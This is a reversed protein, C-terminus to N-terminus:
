LDSRVEYSNSGKLVRKKKLEYGVAGLSLFVVCVFYKGVVNYVTNIGKTPVEGRLIWSSTKFHDLKASSVGRYDSIMSLGNVSQTVINAGNEIGRFHGVVTHYTAIETWDASPIFLIDIDKEGVQNLVVPFDKDWCIIGSIRGYPTDVYQIEMSGLKTGEFLNGGYKYHEIVENGAPDIVYLVNEDAVEDSTIIYPVTVIYIEYLKAIEKIQNLYEEKQTYYLSLTGEAHHIIKAGNKAEIKTLEVIEDIQSENYKLYAEFDTEYLDNARVLDEDDRDITHIGAVSVTPSDEKSLMRLSGYGILLTFILVPILIQKNASESKFNIMYWYILSAFWMIVFTIGVVGILSAIQAIPLLNHQSYGLLSFTGNPNFYYNMYELLAYVSPLILTMKISKSKNFGKHQLYFAFAVLSGAIAPVFKFGPIPIAPILGDFSVYTSVATALLLILLGKVPKMDKIGFLFLVPFLWTAFGMLYKGNSLTMFIM